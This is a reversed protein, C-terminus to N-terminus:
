LRQPMYNKDFIDLEARTAHFYGYIICLHLHISTATNFYFKIQLPLIRNLKAWEQGSKLSLLYKKGM